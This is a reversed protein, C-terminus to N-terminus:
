WDEVRITEHDNVGKAQLPLLKKGCVNWKRRYIGLFLYKNAAKLVSPIAEM